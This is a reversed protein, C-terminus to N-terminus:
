SVAIKKESESSEAQETTKKEAKQDRYLFYAPVAILAAIVTTIEGFVALLGFSVFAQNGAILLSGYGIITTLSCLFVAGGTHRIINVMGKSGEERYRQFMNVGYDVGLGFTIPLAIFNLFNIKFKFGLIIGALWSVGLILTFLINSAISFNRFLLNVLLIVGAFAVLTAKPGDALVSKVMDGTVYVQGAIPTGPAVSDVATRTQQIFPLLDNIKEHPILKKDILVLHGISGDKETFKKRILHPLDEVTFTKFSNEHTFQAYLEKQEPKLRKLIREPIIAKIEKLIKIKEEQDLPAFDYITKVGAIQSDHSSAQARKLADAVKLVDDKDRPMAVIPSPYRKCIEVIYHYLSGSGTTLSRKDRLNEFDAEIMDIGFRPFTAVSILSIIAFTYWIAKPHKEVLNAIGETILFKQYRNPKVTKLFGMKGLVVLYAPLLSHAAIWCLCMGVFGIVGFQSFGQFSTTVLAGYAIASGVAAVITGEITRTMALMIAHMNGRGKRREEIYRGMEIIGCNIGNGIIISGLFASNANLYGVLFYSIGFAWLTGCILSFIVANTVTANFYYLYIVLYVLIMVIVTSLELDEILAAQEEIMNQINGTFRIKLDPAYSSPNLAAVEKDLAARLEKAREIDSGKGPMYIIIGRVKEDPTAYYGDPLGDFENKSKYKKEIDDINTKPKPIDEKPILKLPDNMWREYLLKEKLYTKVRKLEEVELFLPQRTKFFEIEKDVRHEVSSVLEKPLANIRPAIDDIFKKSAKTDDSFALLLINETSELRETVENLDMVSRTKKPLLEEISTRLNKYLLVSYYGGVVSLLTGLISIWIANRIIFASYRQMSKTFPSHHHMM